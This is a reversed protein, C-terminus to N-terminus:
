GGKKAAGFHEMSAWLMMNRGSDGSSKCRVCLTFMPASEMSRTCKGLIIDGREGGRTTYGSTSPDELRWALYQYCQELIPYQYCQKGINDIDQNEKSFISSFISINIANNWYGVNNWYGRSISLMTGIDSISLM